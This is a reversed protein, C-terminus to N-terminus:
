TTGELSGLMHMWFIMKGEKQAQLKAEDLSQTWHIKTVLKQANRSAESGAVVKQCYGTGSLLWILCAMGLMKKM